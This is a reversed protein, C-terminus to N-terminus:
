YRWWWTPQTSEFHQPDVKIAVVSYVVFFTASVFVVLAAQMVDQCHHWCAFGITMGVGGTIALFLGTLIFPRLLRMFVVVIVRLATMAVFAVVRALFALIRGALALISRAPIHLRPLNFLEDSM